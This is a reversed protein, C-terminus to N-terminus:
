PPGRVDGGERLETVGDIGVFCCLEFYSYCRFEEWRSRYEELEKRKEKRRLKSALDRM